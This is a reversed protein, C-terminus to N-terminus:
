KGLSKIEDAIVDRFEKDREIDHDENWKIKRREIFYDVTYTM